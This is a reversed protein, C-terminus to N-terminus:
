PGPIPTQVGPEVSGHRARRELVGGVALVIAGALVTWVGVSRGLVGFLYPWLLGVLLAALVIANLGLPWASFRGGVFALGAVAVLLSVVIWHGPGAVGWQTFYDGLLGAGALVNAWPLLFGVAALGAGAGIVQRPADDALDFSAALRGLGPGPNGAATSGGSGGRQSGSDTSAKEPEPVALGELHASPPLWAGAPTPRVPVSDTGRDDAPPWTAVGRLVAPEAPAPEVAPQAAFAALPRDEDVEVDPEDDLALLVPEAAPPEPAAPTDLEAEPEREAEGHPEAAAATEPGPEAEPGSPEDDADDALLSVEPETPVEALPARPTSSVAALLSGCASCAYRGPAVESGCEPCVVTKTAM